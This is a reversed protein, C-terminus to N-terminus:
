ACKTDKRIKREALIKAQIPKWREESLKFQMWHVSLKRNYNKSLSNYRGIIGLMNMLGQLDKERRSSFEPDKKWISNIRRISVGTLKNIQKSTVNPYKQLILKIFDFEIKEDINM